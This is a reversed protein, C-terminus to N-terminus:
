LLVQDNSSKKISCSLLKLRVNSIIVNVIQDFTRTSKKFLRANRELWIIYCTAAFVLKCSIVQLTKQNSFSIILEVIDEVNSPVNPIGMFDLMRVWIRSTFSCGFYLHDHSDPVQLCFMCLHSMATNNPNIDWRRLRDQTKLKGKIVLWLHIAHRPIRDSFWVVNFWKVEENHYRICNWVESVSFVVENNDYDRLFVVDDLDTVIPVQLNALEPYKDYWHTPWAWEGNLIIDNVKADLRFGANYIDRNSIINSMHGVSCWTDHWAFTNLGNQIRSWFLPRVLPRVLLIKRWGWSMNGRYPYDWFCRGKLKYSHIWKVWLSEKGTIISWIHTSILAKNFTELRRIGLGGERKPLCVVDWAVKAKGKKMDGQCWLFGRM